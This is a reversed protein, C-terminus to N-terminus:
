WWGSRAGAYEAVQTPSISPLDASRGWVGDDYQDRVPCRDAAALLQSFPTAIAHHRPSGTIWKTHAHRGYLGVVDPGTGDVRTTLAALHTLGTDNGVVLQASAFVDICDTADAGDLVAVPPGQWALRQGAAGLPTILTFRWNGHARNTLEAAVKAFQAAGFDKRGPMSTTAAFVVHFPEAALVTSTFAPGPAAAAPLRCGTALEIHLYYRMPLAAHIEVFDGDLLDLWTPPEEPIAAFPVPDATVTQVIHGTENSQGVRMPLTSHSMLGPRPGLYELEFRDGTVEHLARVMALGLLVDGLGRNGLDVSWGREHVLEGIGPPPTEGAARRYPLLRGLPTMERPVILRGGAFERVRLDPWLNLHDDTRLM